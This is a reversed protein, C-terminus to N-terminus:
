ILDAFSKETKRFYWIGLWLFILMVGISLFFGPWYMPEGIICCRFGDIVGVMPNLSFWFRARESYKQAIIASSYGVPTVYIGFQIVFPIIYRFDRYKVNLATAFLGVGFSILFALLVFLPLFIVQFPPIFRYFIMMLLLLGFSIALDVLSTIVSSAPVIMRPFYVKSILNVNGIMSMSAENLAASFFQWPLLGAFVVIPYPPGNKVALNAVKGFVFTFIVMTLFPRIIGWAAGVVTQKYRVKIDRWSLIYFLERYRWLDHWYNKEIGGPEIILEEM